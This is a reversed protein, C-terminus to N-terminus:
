KAHRGRRKPPIYTSRRKRAQPLVVGLLPELVVRNRRRRIVEVVIATIFLVAAAAVLVAVLTWLNITIEM